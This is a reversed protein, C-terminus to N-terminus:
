LVVQSTGKAFFDPGADTLRYQLAASRPVLKITNPPASFGPHLAVEGSVNGSRGSALARVELHYTCIQLLRRFLDDPEDPALIHHRVLLTANAKSCVARLARAFRAVDILPFGIWELMTIDDLIVMAPQTDGGQERSSRELFGRVREVIIKLDSNNENNQFGNPQVDALVDVFELAGSDLHQQLNINSKSALAKWKAIGESVSLITVRPTKKDKLHNALCRHLVFDGPAALSDTILLLISEPLDFPSFYPM